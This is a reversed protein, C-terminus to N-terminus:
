YEAITIMMKSLKAARQSPLLSMVASANKTKMRPLIVVVTNNDLNAMLKAVARQDMGDYLKALNNIRTTEAQELVLLKQSVETNLKELERERLSVESERETLATKEATLWDVQELSDEATMSSEGGMEEEPNYDLFQLNDMIDEFVSPDDDLYSQDPLDAETFMEEAVPNASPTAESAHVETPAQDQDSDAVNETVAATEETPDETPEESGGGFLLVTGIVVILVVALGGGGMIIYKMLPSKATSENEEIDGAEFEENQKKPEEAM